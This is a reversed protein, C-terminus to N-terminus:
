QKTSIRYIGDASEKVENLVMGCMFDGVESAQLWTEMNDLKRERTKIPQTALVSSIKIDTGHAEERLVQAMMKQAAAAVSIAGSEPIVLESAGGNLM